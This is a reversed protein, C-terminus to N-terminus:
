ARPPYKEPEIDLNVLHETWEAEFNPRPLPDPPPPMPPEPIPATACGDNCLVHCVQGCDNPRDDCRDMQAAGVYFAILLLFFASVWRRM